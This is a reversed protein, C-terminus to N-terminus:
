LIIAQSIIDWVMDRALQLGTILVYFWLLWFIGDLTSRPM